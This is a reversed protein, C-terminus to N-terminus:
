DRRRLVSRSNSLGRYGRDWLSRADEVFTLMSYTAATTAWKRLYWCYLLAQEDNPRFPVSVTPPRQYCTSVDRVPSKERSPKEGPEDTDCARASDARQQEILAALGLFSPAASRHLGSRHLGLSTSFPVFGPRLHRRLDQGALADFHHTATGSHALRPDASTINIVSGESPQDKPKRRVIVGRHKM